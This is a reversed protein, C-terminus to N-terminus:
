MVFLDFSDVVLGAGAVLVTKIHLWSLGADDLSALPKTSSM